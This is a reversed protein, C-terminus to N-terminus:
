FDVCAFTNVIFNLHYMHLLHAQQFPVVKPVCAYHCLSLLLSLFCHGLLQKFSVAFYSGYSNIISM